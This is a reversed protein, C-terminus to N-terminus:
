LEVFEVKIYKSLEKILDNPEMNSGCRMKQFLNPMKIPCSNFHSTSENEVNQNIADELTYEADLVAMKKFKDDEAFFVNQALVPRNYFGEVLVIQHDKTDIKIDKRLNFDM